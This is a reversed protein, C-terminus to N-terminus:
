DKNNQEALKKLLSIEMEITSLFPFQNYGLMKSVTDRFLILEEVDKLVSRAYEAIKEKRSATWHPTECLAIIRNLKDKM